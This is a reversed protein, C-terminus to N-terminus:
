SLGTLERTIMDRDLYVAYIIVSGTEAIGVVDRGAM